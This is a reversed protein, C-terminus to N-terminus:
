PGLEEGLQLWVESRTPFPPVAHWLRDLPVEGAVAITAAHLLEGVRAGTFTAGVLVRRREDVIFRALGADGRGEFSAGATEELPRDVARAEIGTERASELTHGVAAVAPDTFVVRPPPAVLPDLRAGDERGLIAQAAVRAQYKGIHTLLARGDVDGIAHLWPLGPARLANDVEIAEGPERGVTELGLDDTRPRRGVAVLLEDAVVPRGGDLEISVEGDRDRRVASAKEGLRVDVGMGTLATAVQEGAFPEEGALLRDAAEIVTVASGLSSWAQAMEVGVVGGGLVALRRPVERATTAERNGWPPAEALGDIPPMVPESGTALVVAREAVLVDDGARVRREGDLRGHARVLEVGREKLWDAQGSDDFDHIVGDRRRLVAAVDIPGRAVGPVRADEATLEGPRLLAKSPMCAYYSCEGGALHEEVLVVSLGAQGLRGACVEGAPGGGVVVVDFAREAM